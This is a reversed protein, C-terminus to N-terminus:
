WADDDDEDESEETDEDDNMGGLERLAPLADPYLNKMIEMFDKNVLKLARNILVPIPSSPEYRTYYDNILKLCKEVDARSEVTGKSKLLPESTNRVNSSQQQNASGQENTEDDASSTNEEHKEYEQELAVDTYKELAALLQQIVDTTREFNVTYEYGARDIFCQNISLLSELSYTLSNHLLQLEESNIKQFIGKIQSLSFDANSNGSVADDISELTIHGLGKVAAMPTSKLSKVIFDDNLYALGSIRELPDGDDEDLPPYFSEWEENILASLGRLCLSFAEIGETNLVAQTLVSILKIDKTQELFSLAETKLARWDPKEAPLTNEGDYREPTGQATFFFNQFSSDDELNIGCVNEESLDNTIIELYEMQQITLSNYIGM